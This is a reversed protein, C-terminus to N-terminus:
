KREDTHSSPLLLTPFPFPPIVVVAERSINHISVGLAGYGLITTQCFGGFISLRFLALFIFYVGFILRFSNIPTLYLLASNAATRCGRWISASLPHFEILSWLLMENPTTSERCRFALKVKRLM